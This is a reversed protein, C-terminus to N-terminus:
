VLNNLKITSFINSCQCSLSLSLSTCTTQTTNYTIAQMYGNCPLFFLTELKAISIGCGDVQVIMDDMWNHSQDIWGRERQNEGQWHTETQDYWCQVENNYWSTHARFPPNMQKGTIGISKFSWWRGINTERKRLSYYGVLTTQKWIDPVVMLGEFNANFLSSKNICCTSLIINLHIYRITSKSTPKM